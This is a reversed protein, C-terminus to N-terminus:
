AELKMQTRGIRLTDDRTVTTPTTVRVGNVYSGNTSGLDTLTWDGSPGRQLEAHQTSVYDDDLVLECDAGRGIHILDVLALRTGAKAGSEIALVTPEKRRRRRREPKILHQEPVDAAPVTRGFLDTRIVNAVLLIFLWLLALFAVKLATALLESM